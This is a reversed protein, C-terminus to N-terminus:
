ASSIIGHFMLSYFVGDNSQGIAAAPSPFHFEAVAFVFGTQRPYASRQCDFESFNFDITDYLALLLAAETPRGQPHIVVTAVRRSGSPCILREASKRDLGM